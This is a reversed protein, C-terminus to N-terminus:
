RQLAPGATAITEPHLAGAKLRSCTQLQLLANDMKIGYVTNQKTTFELEISHKDLLHRLSQDLSHCICIYM